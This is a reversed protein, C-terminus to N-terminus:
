RSPSDGTRSVPSHARRLRWVEIARDIRHGGRTLPFYGLNEFRGSHSRLTERLLRPHTEVSTDASTDLVVVDAAEELFALVEAPTRYVLRYNEGDWGSVALVKSGRLIRRRPRPERAVVESIFMGEGRVDAVILTVSPGGSPSRLLLDAAAAFGAWAKAPVAFGDALFSAVAMAVVAARWRAPHGARAGAWRAVVAIGAAVFMMLAPLAMVM